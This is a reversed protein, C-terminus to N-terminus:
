LTLNLSGASIKAEWHSVTIQGFGTWCTKLVVVKSPIAYQSIGAGSRWRGVFILTTGVFASNFGLL